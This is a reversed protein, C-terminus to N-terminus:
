QLHNEVLRVFVHNIELICKCICYFFGGGNFLSAMGCSDGCAFGEDLTIGPHTEEACKSSQFFKWLLNNDTHEYMNTKLRM